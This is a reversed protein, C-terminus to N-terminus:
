VTEEQLMFMEIIFAGKWLGSDGVLSFDATTVRVARPFAEVLALFHQVEKWTGETRIQLVLRPQENPMDRGQITVSSVDPSVGAVHGLEEFMSIIDVVEEQTGFYSVVAEREKETDEVVSAVSSVRVEREVEYSLDSRLQTIVGNVRLVSNFLYAYIGLVVLTLLALVFLLQQTRLRM